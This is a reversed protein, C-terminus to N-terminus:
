RTPYQQRRHHGAGLMRQGEWKQVPKAGQLHTVGVQGEEAALCRQLDMEVVQSTEQDLEAEKEAEM